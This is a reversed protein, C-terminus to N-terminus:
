EHRAPRSLRSAAAAATAAAAASCGPRASSSSRGRSPEKWGGGGSRGRGRARAGPHRRAHGCGLARARPRGGPEAAGACARSMGEAARPERLDDRAEPRPGADRALVASSLAHPPLRPRGAAMNTAPQRPRAEARSPSLGTLFSFRISVRAKGEGTTASSGLVESGVPPGQGKFEEPDRRGRSRGNGAPGGTSPLSSGQAGKHNAWERFTRDHGRGVPSSSPTPLPCHPVM